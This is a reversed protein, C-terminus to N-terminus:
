QGSIEISRYEDDTKPTMGVSAFFSWLPGALYPPLPAVFPLDEIAFKRCTFCIDVNVESGDARVIGITHHPIWCLYTKPVFPRPSVNVADRLRQLEDPKATKRAIEINGTHEVLVVSRAGKLTTLLKQSTTWTDRDLFVFCAIVVASVLLLLMLTARYLTKKM